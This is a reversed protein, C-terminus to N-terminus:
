LEACAIETTRSIEYCENSTLWYADPTWFPDCGETGIGSACECAAKHDDVYNGPGQDAINSMCRCLDTHKSVTENDANRTNSAVDSSCTATTSRAYDSSRLPFQDLQASVSLALICSIVFKM